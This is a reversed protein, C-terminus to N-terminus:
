LERSNSSPSSRRLPHASSM